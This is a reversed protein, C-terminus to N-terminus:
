GIHTRPWKLGYGVRQDSWFAVLWRGGQRRSWSRRNNNPGHSGLIMVIQVKLQRPLFHGNVPAAVRSNRGEQDILM